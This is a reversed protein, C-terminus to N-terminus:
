KIYSKLKAKIYQLWNMSLYNIFLKDYNADALICKPHSMPFELDYTPLKASVANSNSTHTSDIGYGINSIQNYKPVISLGNNIFRSFGFQYDWASTNMSNNVLNDYINKRTQYLKPHMNLKILAKIHPDNWLEINIDMLKWARRWSAWGHIGGLKSFHYSQNTPQWKHLINTGSILMIRTDNKYKELLEDCYQFFSNNPVCDDELIIAQDENEFVWSIGSFPRQSCGLNVNSFNKKIECDWEINEFLSRVKLCKKIDEKNNSRPGDAIVYLKRPKFKKVQEFVKLTNEYRNFVIMAVANETKYKEM